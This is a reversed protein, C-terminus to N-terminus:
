WPVNVQVTKSARGFRDGLKDLKYHKGLYREVANRYGDGGNDDAFEAYTAIMDRGKARSTYKSATHKERLRNGIEGQGIAITEYNPASERQLIKSATEEPSLACGIVYVGETEDLESNGIIDEVPHWGSKPKAWKLNFKKVPSYRLKAMDKRTLIGNAGEYPFVGASQIM